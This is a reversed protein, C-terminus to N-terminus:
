NMDGTENYMRERGAREKEARNEGGKGGWMRMSEGM